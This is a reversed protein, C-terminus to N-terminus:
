IRADHLSIREHNSAPSWEVSNCQDCDAAQALLILLSWRASDAAAYGIACKADERRRGSDDFFLAIPMALHSPRKPVHHFTKQQLRKGEM